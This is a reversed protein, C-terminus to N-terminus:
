RTRSRPERGVRATVLTTGASCTVSRFRDGVEAVWFADAITLAQVRLGRRRARFTAEVVDAGPPLQGWALSWRSASRGSRRGGRLPTVGLTTLVSVDILGAESHVELAPRGASGRAIRLLWGSRPLRLEGPETRTLTLTPPGTLPREDPM